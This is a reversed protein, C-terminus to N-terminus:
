KGVEPGLDDLKMQLVRAYPANPDLETLAASYAQRAQNRKGQAVLIDGRLEDYDSAFGDRDRSDALKLAADLRGDQMLLRALRLRAVVRVGAGTGHDMAWRLHGRAAKANGADMSLRALVLAADGAYPTSGYHRILLQGDAQAASVNKQSLEGLMVDYLSSAADASFARHRLWYNTGAIVLIGLAVGAILANGYKNWWTKLWELQQDSDFAEM